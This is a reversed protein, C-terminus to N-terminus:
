LRKKYVFDDLANIKQAYAEIVDDHFTAETQMQQLLEREMYLFADTTNLIPNHKVYTAMQKVANVRRTDCDTMPLTLVLQLLKHADSLTAVMELENIYKILEPLTKTKLLGTKSLFFLQHTLKEPDFLPSTNVRTTMQSKQFERMKDMKLMEFYEFNEFDKTRQVIINSASTIVQEFVDKFMPNMSEGLPEAGDDIFGFLPDHEDRLSPIQSVKFVEDYGESKLRGLDQVTKSSCHIWASVDSVTQLLTTLEEIEKLVRTILVLMFRNDCDQLFALFHPAKISADSEWNEPFAIIVEFLKVMAPYFAKIAIVHGAATDLQAWGLPDIENEAKLFTMANPSEELFKSIASLNWYFNRHEKEHSLSQLLIKRMDHEPCHFFNALPYAYLMNFHFNQIQSLPLVIGDHTFGVLKDPLKLDKTAESVADFIEKASREYNLNIFDHFREHCRGEKDVYRLILAASSKKVVNSSDDIFLSLYSCEDMEKRIRARMVSVIAGLVGEVHNLVFENVLDKSDDPKADQVQKLKQKLKLDHPTTLKVLDVYEDWSSQVNKVKRKLLCVVDIIHKLFRRNTKVQDIDKKPVSLSKPVIKLRSEMLKLQLSADIHEPSSEHHRTATAMRSLAYGSKAWMGDRHFLLCPWCFARNLKLCGTLWSIKEFDAQSIGHVAETVPPIVRGNKIVSKKDEESWHSEQIPYKLLQEILSHEGDQLKKQLANQKNIRYKKSQKRATLKKRLERAFEKVDAHEPNNADWVKLCGATAVHSISLRHAEADAVLTSRKKIDISWVANYGFLLCPWCFVKQLKACGCMWEFRRYISENVRLKELFPTEREMKLVQAREEDLWGKSMLRNKSLKYTLCCFRTFDVLARPAFVDFSREITKTAVLIPQVASEASGNSESFDDDALAEGIVDDITMPAPTSEENEDADDDAETIIGNITIHSTEGDEDDVESVVGNMDGLPDTQWTASEEEATQQGNQHEVVETPEDDSSVKRRKAATAVVADDEAEDDSICFVVEYEPEAM